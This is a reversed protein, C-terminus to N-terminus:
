QHCILTTKNLSSRAEGGQVLGHFVKGTWLAQQTLVHQRDVYHVSTLEGYSHISRSVTLLNNM